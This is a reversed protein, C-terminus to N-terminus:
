SCNKCNEDKGDSSSELAEVVIEEGNGSSFTEAGGFMTDSGGFMSDSGSFMTDTGNFLGESGNFTTETPTTPQPSMGESPALIMEM